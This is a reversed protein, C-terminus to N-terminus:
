LCLSLGFENGGSYCPTLVSYQSTGIRLCPILDLIHCAVLVIFNAFVYCQM